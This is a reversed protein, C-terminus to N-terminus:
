NSETQLISKTYKHPNTRQSPKLFHSVKQEPYQSSKVETVARFNEKNNVESWILAKSTGSEGSQLLQELYIVVSVRKATTEMLFFATLRWSPLKSGSEFRLLHNLNNGTSRVLSSGLDEGYQRRMHLFTVGALTRCGITSDTKRNAESFM